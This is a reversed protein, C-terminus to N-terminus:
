RPNRENVTAGDCERNPPKVKTTDKFMRLGWVILIICATLFVGFAILVIVLDFIAIPNM